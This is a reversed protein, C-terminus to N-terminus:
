PNGDALFRLLLDKGRSFQVCSLSSKPLRPRSNAPFQPSYLTFLNFFLTLASDLLYYFNYHTAFRFGLSLIINEIARGSRGRPSSKVREESTSIAYPCLHATFFRSIYLQDSGSREACTSLEGFRGPVTGTERSYGCRCEELSELFIYTRRESSGLDIGRFSNGLGGSM